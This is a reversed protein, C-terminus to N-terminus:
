ESAEDLYTKQIRLLDEPNEADLLGRVVDENMLVESLKTMNELHQESDCSALTFFLRADKEPDGDEFSVPKKLKMFGITTRHVGRAGEQCHPMAVDPMIIIYPGYKEVCAIIQDKYDAEVTGDAELSECSMRIAERWDSAEEAFKYHKSEVFDRLM